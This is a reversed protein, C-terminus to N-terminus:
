WLDVGAGTQRRQRPRARDKPAEAPPQAPQPPPAEHQSPQPAAAAAATATDPVPGRLNEALLQDLHDADILVRSGLRTHRLRDAAVLEYLLSKGIAGNLREIAQKIRILPTQRDSM